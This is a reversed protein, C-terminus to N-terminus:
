HENTDNIEIKEFSIILNKAIVKGAAKGVKIKGVEDMEILGYKIFNNWSEKSRHRQMPQTKVIFIENDVLKITQLREIERGNLGLYRCILNEIKLFLNNFMM